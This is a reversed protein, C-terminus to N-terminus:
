NGIPPSPPSVIGLRRWVVTAIKDSLNRDFGLWHGLASSAIAMTTYETLRSPVDIKTVVGVSFLTLLEPWLHILTWAFISSFVVSSYAEVAGLTENLLHRRRLVGSTAALSCLVFVSSHPNACIWVIANTAQDFPISRGVAFVAGWLLVIVSLGICSMVDHSTIKDTSDM